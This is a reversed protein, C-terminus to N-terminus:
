TRGQNSEMECLSLTQPWESITLHGCVQLKYKNQAAKLDLSFFVINGGYDRIHIIAEQNVDSWKVNDKLTELVHTKDSQCINLTGQQPRRRRSIVSM